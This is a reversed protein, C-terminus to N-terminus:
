TNQEVIAFFICLKKWNILDKKHRIIVESLQLKVTKTLNLSSLLEFIDNIKPNSLLKNITDETQEEVFIKIQYYIDSNYCYVKFFLEKFSSILLFIDCQKLTFKLKEPLNICIDLLIDPNETLNCYCVYDSTQNTSPPPYVHSVIVHEQLYKNNNEAQILAKEENNKSLYDIILNFFTFYAYFEFHVIKIYNNRNLKLQFDTFQPQGFVLGFPYALLKNEGITCLDLYEATIEENKTM